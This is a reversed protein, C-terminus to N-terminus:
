ATFLTPYLSKTQFRRIEFSFPNCGGADCEGEAM